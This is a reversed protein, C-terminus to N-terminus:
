DNGIKQSQGAQFRITAFQFFAREIKALNGFFDGITPNLQAIAIRM